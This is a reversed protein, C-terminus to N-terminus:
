TEHKAGGALRDVESASILYMGQPNTDDVRVAHVKGARIWRRITAVNVGILEAVERPTYTRRM